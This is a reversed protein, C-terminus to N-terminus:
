NAIPLPRAVLERTRQDESPRANVSATKPEPLPTADPPRLNSLRYRTAQMRWHRVIQM